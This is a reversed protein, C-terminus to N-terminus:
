PDKKESKILTKSTTNKAIFFLVLRM